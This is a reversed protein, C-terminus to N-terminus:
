FEIFNNFQDLIYQHRETYHVNIVNRRYMYINVLILYKYVTDEFIVYKNLKIFYTNYNYEYTYINNRLLYDIGCNLSNKLEDM